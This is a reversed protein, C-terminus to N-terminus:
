RILENDYNEKKEIIKQAIEDWSKNAILQYVFVTEHVSDAREIRGHRQTQIAYSEALDYEILYKCNSLNLGEAGADSALLINYEDSDRFRDYVERYRDKSSMTGNIYAIKPPTKKLKKYEKQIRATIVDQMRRFKSFIVVKEEAGLIEDLLEILLEMKSSESGTIYKKAMESESSILLEETNALQQAFSQHAMIMGEIKKMDPHNKFNPENRLKSRLKKEEERQQDIVEMIEKHMEKQAPKLECYRQMVVLSPLQSSIEEKSKVIISDQIKTRLEPLNKFGCPQRFNDLKVFDRKFSTWNKFLSPKVFQFIGFLDEPDRGVPTATAGVKYPVYASFEALAKHRDSTRSKVYHVEDALIFELKKKHLYKKVAEDKLTEYNLIFLDVGDFQSAFKKDKEKNIKIIEKLIKGIDPHKENELKLKAIKKERSRIRNSESSCLDSETQIIRSTLSSFKSVEKDWQSKLSAKVVILGPGKVLGQSKYELYLGIGVATKGAGCPLVLLAEKQDLCFKIAEKQYSYPKLKMDKGISEYDKASNNIGQFADPVIAKKPLTSPAAKAAHNKIPVIPDQIGFHKKILSINDRDFIWSNSEFDYSKNKVSMIKNIYANFETKKGCFSVLFQDGHPKIEIM